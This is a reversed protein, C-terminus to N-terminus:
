GNHLSEEGKEHLSCMCNPMSKGLLKLSSYTKFYYDYVIYIYGFWQTLIKRKFM